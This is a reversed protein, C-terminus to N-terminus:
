ACCINQVCAARLLKRYTPWQSVKAMHAAIFPNEVWFQLDLLSRLNRIAHFKLELKSLDDMYISFFVMHKIFSIFYPIDLIVNIWSQGSNIACTFVFLITHLKLVNLINSKKWFTIIINDCYREIFYIYVHM